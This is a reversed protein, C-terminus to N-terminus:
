KCERGLFFLFLSFHIVNDPVQNIKMTNCIEFFTALHNYSNEHCLGHLQNSQVLHMLAHKIDMNPTVITPKVISNFNLPGMFTAYDGLTHQGDDQEVM